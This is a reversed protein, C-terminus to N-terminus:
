GTRRRELPDPPTITHRGNHDHVISWGDEHIRHHCPTCVLCLNTEDTPGHDRHWWRIHHIPCRSAPAGCGICTQDRAIIALRQAKTPDRRTRGVDLVAGNRAVTVATLEADCCLMQTTTTSIPGIGNLQAPPADPTNHLEEATTIVLVHPRQAAMQSLEGADLARRALDILADAQRQPFTRDDDSTTNRTQADLAAILTAGGVPDLAFQGCVIGDLSDTSISLRRNAWARRERGALAEPDVTHTWADVRQRLQRRDLGVGDTAVLRDLEERVDPRLEKATQAAVQAQGLGIVGAQL